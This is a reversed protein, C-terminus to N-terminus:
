ILSQLVSRIFIHHPSQGQLAAWIQLVKSVDDLLCESFIRRVWDSGREVEALDGFHAFEIDLGIIHEQDVDPAQVVICVLPLARKLEERIAEIQGM